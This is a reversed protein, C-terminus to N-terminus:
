PRPLTAAKWRATLLAPDPPTETDVELAIARESADLPEQFAFQRELVDLTAESADARGADREAVRQRLQAESARCDLITFPVHLEAALSRFAQREAHRLFAADVIVPYGAQLAARACTALHAFTRRTAEPTYIDIAQGASRQLAGLGYLRKREVDSRLRIAGTRELLQGAITSKGSGSLGHTILLRPEANVSGRVLREALQLYDPEGPQPAAGARARLRGVLARVLARYVEYFRLVALGEYDGGQQLYVDLVRAALDARGHAKLDMTLFALDSMVDIWRLAPDFEICDFPMLEDDVQVANALHLDGHCERVAGDRQRYLWTMRLDQSRDAVWRRLGEMRAAGCEVALQALVGTVPGEVQAPAGFTLPPAAVPAQAHFDALRTALGDLRAPELRGALLLERLLAGDPFRRMCVVYDIAEGDGGIRPADPTGCVPEVSLYLAPALRRNLRLEEECFHRRAALSGFDVFSLRVPKKLKYARTATLLVWSIHTEILSVPHGTEARLRERLANALTPDVNVRDRTEADM